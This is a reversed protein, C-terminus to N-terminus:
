TVQTPCPCAACFRVQARDLPTGGHAEGKHTRHVGKHIRGM